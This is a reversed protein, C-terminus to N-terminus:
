SVLAAGRRSGASCMHRQGGVAEKAGHARLAELLLAVLSRRGEEAVAREIGLSGVFLAAAGVALAGARRSGDPAGRRQAEVVLVVWLRWRRAAGIVGVSVHGVASCCIGRRCTCLRYATAAFADGGQLSGPGLVEIKCTGM